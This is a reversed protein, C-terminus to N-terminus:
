STPEDNEVIRLTFTKGSEKFDWACEQDKLMEYVACLVAETADKKELFCKGPKDLWGIRITQSLPSYAVAVRKLLENNTM